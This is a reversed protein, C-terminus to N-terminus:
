TRRTAASARRVASRRRVLAAVGFLLVISASSSSTGATTSCGSATSRSSGAAGDDGVPLTGSSTGGPGPPVAANGPPTTIKPAPCVFDMDASDTQVFPAFPLRGRLQVSHKNKTASAADCWGTAVIQLEGGSTTTPHTEITRGDFSIGLEYVGAWPKMEDALTYTAAITYQTTGYDKLTVTPASKLDALKTPLPAEASATFSLPKAAPYAGYNCFSSFQLEYSTGPTLAAAPKVELLGDVTRGLTLALETKQAGVAFLHVDNTTATTATYAFAPLNAPVVAATPTMTAPACPMAPAAIATPSGALGVCATLAALLLRRRKM